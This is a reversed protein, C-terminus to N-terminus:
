FLKHLEWMGNSERLELKLGDEGPFLPGQYYRKLEDQIEDHTKNEMEPYFHVLVVAGPNSVQCIDGIQRLNLHMHHDYDFFSCEVILLDVDQFNAEIGEYWGTDGTFVVQKGSDTQFRIGLAGDMHSVHFPTITLTEIQTAVGEELVHPIFIEEYMGELGLEDLMHKIQKLSYESAYLNVPKGPSYGPSYKWAVVHRTLDVTHDPHSHTFLINNISDLAPYIGGEARCRQYLAGNGFDVQLRTDKHIIEYSTQLFQNSSASGCGYM